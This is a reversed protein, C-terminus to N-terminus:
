GIGSGLSNGGKFSDTRARNLASDLEAHAVQRVINWDTGMPLNITLPMNLALKSPPIVMEGGHAIIMRPQGVAGPVIGGMQMSPAYVWQGNVFSWGSGTPGTPIASPMGVITQLLAIDKLQSYIRAYVDSIDQNVGLWTLAATINTVQESTIQPIKAILGAVLYNIEGQTLLSQDLAAAQARTLDNVLRRREQQDEIATIQDQLAQAEREAPSLGAEVKEIQGQLKKELLENGKGQIQNLRDQLDAIQQERALKGQEAVAEQDYLLLRLEALRIDEQVSERTPLNLLRDLASTYTDVNGALEAFLGAIEQLPDILDETAEAASGAADSAQSGFNVYKDMLDEIDLGVRPAATRIEHLGQLIRDVTTVGRKTGTESMVFAVPVSVGATLYSMFELVQRVSMRDLYPLIEVVTEAPLAKITKIIEEIKAAADNGFAKRLREGLVKLRIETEDSVRKLLGIRTNLTDLEGQDEFAEGLAEKLAELENVRRQLELQELNDVLLPLVVSSLESIAADTGSIQTAVEGASKGVGVLADAVKPADKVIGGFEEHMRTTAATVADTSKALDIEARQLKSFADKVYPTIGPVETMVRSLELFTPNLALISKALNKYANEQAETAAWVPGSINIIEAQINAADKAKQTWVALARSHAETASLGSRMATDVFALSDGYSKVMAAANKADSQTGRLWSLMGSGTLRKVIQDVAILAIVLLGIQGQTTSFVAGLGAVAGRLYSTTGLSVMMARELAIWQSIFAAIQVAAFAAALAVLGAVVVPLSSALPAVVGVGKAMMGFFTDMAGITKNAAGVIKAQNEEILGIVTGLGAKYKSVFPQMMAALMLNFNDSLTSQLGGITTSQKVMLGEFRGLEESLAAFIEDASAGSKTMEEMKNRAVGSLLGLEQLRMAAEGFPRGSQIATYARGVWFAIEEIGVSVGAAADGVMKLNKMSFLGFTEMLRAAKSIGALEFPTEAAFKALEEIRKQAADASGLLTEFGLKMQEMQDATRLGKLGFGVAAAGVAAFSAAAAVAGVKLKTGLSTGLNATATDMQKIGSLYPQLGDITAQVGIKELQAV